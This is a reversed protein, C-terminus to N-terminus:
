SAEGEAEIRATHWRKELQWSPSREPSNPSRDYMDTTVISAHGAARRVDGMPMGGDLATTIHTARTSHPTLQDILREPLGAEAALRRLLLRVATRHIRRGTRTAVLPRDGAAVQGPLAPLRDLDTRDALYAEIRALTGPAITVLRTRGGKGRVYLVTMGRDLGIDGVNAAVLEGVRIGTTLLLWVIAAARPTDALAAALLKEVQGDSLAPARRPAPKPREARDLLAPNRDTAEERILWGYWSSVAALRRARTSGSEHTLSGLWLSVHRHRADTPYVGNTRCWKLWSALDRRYADKTHESLRAVLWDNTLENLRENSTPDGAPVLDNGAVAAM